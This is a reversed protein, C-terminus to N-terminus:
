CQDSKGTQCSRAHSRHLSLGTWCAAQWVRGARQFRPYSGRNGTAFTFGDVQLQQTEKMIKLQVEDLDVKSLQEGVAAQLASEQV